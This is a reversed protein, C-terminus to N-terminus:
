RHVGESRIKSDGAKGVDSVPAGAKAYDTVNARAKLQIRLRLLQELAGGRGEHEM